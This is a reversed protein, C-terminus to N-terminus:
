RGRSRERVEVLHLLADKELEYAHNDAVQNWAYGLMMVAGGSVLPMTWWPWPCVAVPFLKWTAVGVWFGTCARCYVLVALMPHRPAVFLRWLRGVTAETLVYLISSVVVLWVFFYSM